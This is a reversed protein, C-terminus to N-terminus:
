CSCALARIRSQHPSHLAHHLLTTTWPELRQTPVDVLGALSASDVDSPMPRGLLRALLRQIDSLPYLAGGVSFFDLDGNHTVYGEVGRAEGVFRRGNDTSTWVTQLRRPLWQHPHCGDLNSVSSTAFRTHAHFIRPRDQAFVRGRLTRAIRALLLDDLDTRKRNVVRSRVGRVGASATEYTVLGASQAGRVMTIKLMRRLLSLVTARELPLLLLLGFNGCM